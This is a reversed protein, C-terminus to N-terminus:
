LLFHFLILAPGLLFSRVLVQKKRENEPIRTNPGGNLLSFLSIVTPGASRGKLLSFSSTLTARMLAVSKIEKKKIHAWEKEKEKEPTISGGM